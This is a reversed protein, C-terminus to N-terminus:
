TGLAAKPAWLSSCDEQEELQVLVPTSEISGQVEMQPVLWHASNERGETQKTAIATSARGEALRGLSSVHESRTRAVHLREVVFEVAKHEEFMWDEQMGSQAEAVRVALGM